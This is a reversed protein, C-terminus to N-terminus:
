PKRYFTVARSNERGERSVLAGSRVLAALKSQTGSRGMGLEKMAEQRTFEGPQRDLLPVAGLEALMAGLESLAGRTSKGLNRKSENRAM